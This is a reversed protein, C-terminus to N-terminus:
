PTGAGASDASEAPAPVGYPNDIREVVTAGDAVVVAGSRDFAALADDWLVTRTPDPPTPQVDNSTPTPAVSPRWTSTQTASTPSPDGAVPASVRNPGGGTALAVGGAVVLVVLASAGASALRRRAVARHGQELLGALALDHDPAPGISRDLHSALDLDM